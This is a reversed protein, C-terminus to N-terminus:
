YLATALRRRYERALEHEVGLEDLVGVVVKRIDDRRNPHESIAGILAELGAATLGEDLAALAPALEPLEAELTLRAVIADAQFSDRVGELVAIAGDRDGRALL